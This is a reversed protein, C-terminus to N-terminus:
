ARFAFNEAMWSGLHVVILGAERADDLRRVGPGGRPRDRRALVRGEDPPRLEAVLLREREGVARRGDAAM